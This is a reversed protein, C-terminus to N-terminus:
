KMSINYTLADSSWLQKLEDIMPCLCFDINWGRSDPIPIVMSLFMFEPRMCMGPPLNYIMFIMPWRSYSATFLGFLNFGYSCLELHVNRSEVSFQPHVM